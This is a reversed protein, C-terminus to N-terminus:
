KALSFLLTSMMLFKVMTNCLVHFISQQFPGTRGLLPILFSLSSRRSIQKNVRRSVARLVRDESRQQRRGGGEQQGAETSQLLSMMRVHYSTRGAENSSGKQAKTGLQGVERGGQGTRTRQNKASSLLKPM